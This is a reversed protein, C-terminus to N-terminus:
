YLHLHRQHQQQHHQQIPQSQLRLTAIVKMKPFYLLPPKKNVHLKKLIVQKKHKKITSLM